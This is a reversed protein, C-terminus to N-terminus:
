APIEIEYAHGAKWDSPIVENLQVWSEPDGYDVSKYRLTIVGLPAETIDFVTGYARRMPRWEGRDAQFIEIAIIDFTGPQYLPVIALYAPYRSQPLVLFIFRRYYLCPVRKFEVGVVGYAFLHQAKYPRALSEFAAQSLIFDTKDGEGYDTVVVRTGEESCDEPITCRVRYCAGCGSGGRYLRSVGTVRGDNVFRGYEGFGCAGTPTGLFDPRGYYTARSYDGGYYCLAAPLLVTTCLFAAYYYNMSSRFGM